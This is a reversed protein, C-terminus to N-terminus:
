DAIIEYRHNIKATKGLMVGVSCYKEESLQIAQEVASAPIDKGRVTYVVDINTYVMPATEARAGDVRVELGAIQLRKKELIDLVDIATCGALGVLILEMPSPGRQQNAGEIVATHGSGTHTQFARDEVWKVSATKINAVSQGRQNQHEKKICVGAIVQLGAQTAREYAQMNEAGPQMWVVKAKKAIAQEVIEPVADPNRFIDVVDVTGPIALVDPYSREGLVEALMPNVPIIKFGKSQLYQAVQYSPREQNNSAGVIAITKYENLIKQIPDM